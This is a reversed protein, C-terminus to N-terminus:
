FRGGGGGGSFGGGGFSGGSFGGGSGGGSSMSSAAEAARKAASASGIAANVTSNIVRNISTINQYYVMDFMIDGTNINNVNMEDIKIKMTKALKDACGLSVAYVLYKEWLYIEPLDKTDMSGFDNMFKKLGNWKAFQENGSKTRKKFLIMYIITAFSVIILLMALFTKSLLYTALIIGVVGILVGVTKTNNKEEFFDLSKAEIKSASLWDEYNSLFDDYDVNARRKIDKLSVENDYEFVVKMLKKEIDTLNTIENKILLFNKNKNDLPKYTIKKKYILNLIGASLDDNTIKKRMLYGVISPEYDNPIDRYYKGTFESKYEKDHLHYTKYNYLGLLILYIICIINAIIREELEKKEIQKLIDELQIELEKRLEDDEKLMFVTDHALDYYERDLTERAYEVYTIAQQKLEEYYKERLANSENALKTEIEIIKDLANINTKKNTNVIDKDFVFRTDIATYADLGKITLLLTQNDIIKSEGYLPGHAWVKLLDENNPIHIYVELDNVSESLVTFINLGVEAVDNHIIVKNELEYELYFDKNKRSPNYILYTEGVSRITKIYVGYNGKTANSVEKFLDGSINDFSDLASNIGRIEKLIIDTGDYITNSGTPSLNPGSYGSYSGKYDIIREFGNYTGNLRFAEKVNLNGNELVTIDIRYNEIGYEAKVSFPILLIFLYILKKM